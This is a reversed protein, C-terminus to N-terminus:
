PVGVTIDASIINDFTISFGTQNVHGNLSVTAAHLDNIINTVTDFGPASKNITFSTGVVLPTVTTITYTFSANTVNDTITLTADTLSVGTAPTISSVIMTVETISVNRITALYPELESASSPDFSATGGFPYTDSKALGEAVNIPVNYTVPVTIELADIIKSCSIFMSSILMSMIIVLFSIKKM